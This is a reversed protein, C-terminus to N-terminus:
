VFKQIFRKMDEYTRSGQYPIRQKNIYLIFSPIGSLEPYIVDIINAIDKETQREGDLQITLCQIFGENALQQFTPKVLNCANCYSGQIMIFSPKNNFSGLLDGSESFDSKELYAIPYILNGM